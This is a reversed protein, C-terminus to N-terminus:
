EDVIRFYIKIFTSPLLKAQAFSCLSLILQVDNRTETHLIMQLYKFGFPSM